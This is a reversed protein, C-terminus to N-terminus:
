KGLWIKFDNIRDGSVFVEKPAAPQLEVKLKGPSYSYASKVSVASIICQRNVRFFLRPDLCESLEDLSYNVVLRQGKDTLMYTVKAELFFCSINKSEITLIRNGATIMFRDKYTLVSKQSIAEALTQYNFQTFHNQLSRYKNLAAQLEPFQLPKLLYDISNVKFAQIM